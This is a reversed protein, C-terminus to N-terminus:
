GAPLEVALGLGATNASELTNGLVVQLRLLGGRKVAKPTKVTSTIYPGLCIAFSNAGVM